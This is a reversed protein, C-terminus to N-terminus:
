CRSQQKPRSACSKLWVTHCFRRSRLSLVGTQGTWHLWSHNNQCLWSGETCSVERGLCIWVCDCRLQWGALAQVLTDMLTNTTESFDEDAWPSRTSTHSSLFCWSDDGVLVKLSGQLLQSWLPEFTLAFLFCQLGDEAQHLAFLGAVSSYRYAESPRRWYTNTTSCCGVDRTM